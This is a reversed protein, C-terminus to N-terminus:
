KALLKHEYKGALENLKKEIEERSVGKREMKRIEWIENLIKLDEETLTHFAKWADVNVLFSLMEIGK